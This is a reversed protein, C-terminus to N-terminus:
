GFQWPYFVFQPYFCVVSVYNHIILWSNCRCYCQFIIVYGPLWWLGLLVVLSVMWIPTSLEAQIYCSDWEGQSFLHIHQVWLRICLLLDYCKIEVWSGKTFFIPWCTFTSWCSRTGGLSWVCWTDINCLLNDAQFSLDKSQHCHWNLWWFDIPISSINATIIPVYM